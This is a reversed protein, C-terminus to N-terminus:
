SPTSDTSCSSGTQPPSGARISAPRSIARRVSSGSSTSTSRHSVDEGDATEDLAVRAGFDEVADVEVHAGPLDVAQEPGVAGALRRQDLADRANDVRGLALDQDG